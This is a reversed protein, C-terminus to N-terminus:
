EEIGLNKFKHLPSHRKIKVRTDIFEDDKSKAKKIDQLKIKYLKYGECESHCNLYRNTCKMCPNPLGYQIWDLKGM